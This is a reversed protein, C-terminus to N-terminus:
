IKAQEEICYIKDQAIFFPYYIIWAIAFNIIQLLVMSWNGLSLIWANIFVPVTYPISLGTLRVGFGLAVWFYTTITLIIPIFVFPIIMLPNFIITTFTIPENIQFLSPGISVKGLQKFRQSKGWFLCMIALPLTAGSGGLAVWTYLLERTFIHPLENLPTGAAFATQNIGSAARLAPDMFADAISNGQIGITWFMQASFWYTIGGSLTASLDILPASIFKTVLEHLSNYPSIEVLIRIILMIVIVVGTPIISTFSRAVNPPVVDPMTIVINNQITIRYIETSIIGILLGLFLGTAGLNDLPIGPVVITEGIEMAQYIIESPTILLFAMLTTLLSGFADVKYSEALRYSVGLSAIIGLLSFTVGIPYRLNTYWSEGFISLMMNQYSVNPFDTIILFISGIMVPILTIIMGDRIAQLHRQSAIKQMTPQMKELLTILPQLFKM